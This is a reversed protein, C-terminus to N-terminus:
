RRYRAVIAEAAYIESAEVILPGRYSEEALAELTAELHSGRWGALRVAALRNRFRLVMDAPNEVAKRFAGHDLCLGLKPAGSRHLLEHVDQAQALATGVANRVALRLAMREALAALRTMADVMMAFGASREHGSAIIALPAGLREVIQMQMYADDTEREFTPEDLATLSPLEVAAVDLGCSILENRFRRGDLDHPGVHRRIVAWPLTVFRVSDPLSEAEERSWQALEACLYM